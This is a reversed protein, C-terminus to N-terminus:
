RGALLMPINLCCLGNALDGWVFVWLPSIGFPFGCPKRNRGLNVLNGPSLDLFSGFLAKELFTSASFLTAEVQSIWPWTPVMMECRPAGHWGAHTWRRAGLQVRLEEEAAGEWYAAFRAFRGPCPVASWAKAPRSTFSGAADSVTLSAGVSRPLSSTSFCGLLRLAPVHGQTLM